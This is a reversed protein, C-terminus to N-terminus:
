RSGEKMRWRTQSGEDELRIGVTLLDQRIRDAESFDSRARARNRAEIAVQVIPGLISSASSRTESDGLGLVERAWRFPAELSALATGSLADLRPLWEGLSRAYGFLRAISERTNFDGSMSQDLQEVVDSSQRAVEVPLERGAREVGERELLERIRRNPEMLRSYAEQAEELSKGEIYELPSRYHANLYFFRLVEPGYRDLVADLDVVNGESKSM